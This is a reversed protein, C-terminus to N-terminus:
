LGNVSSLSSSVLTGSPNPWPTSLSGPIVMAVKPKVFPCEPTGKGLPLLSSEWLDHDLGGM